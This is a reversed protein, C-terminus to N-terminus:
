NILPAKVLSQQIGDLWAKANFSLSKTLPQDLAKDSESKSTQITQGQQHKLQCFLSTNQLVETSIHLCDDRFALPTPTMANILHINAIDNNIVSKAQNFQGIKDMSSLGLSAKDPLNFAKRLALNSTDRAVTQQAKPLIFLSQERVDEALMALMLSFDARRTQVVSENLQEGLQLEHLLVDTSSFSTALKENSSRMMEGNETFYNGSIQESLKVVL